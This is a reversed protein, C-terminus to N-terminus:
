QSRRFPSFGTRRGRGAAGDRPRCRNSPRLGLAVKARHPRAGRANAGRSIADLRAREALIREAAQRARAGRACGSESPPEFLHAVVFGRGSAANSQLPGCRQAQEAISLDAPLPMVAELAGDHQRRGLAFRVLTFSGPRGVRGLSPHEVEGKAFADLPIGADVLMRSRLAGALASPWPPMLAEGFSGADGFLRNGRFSLVDLPEILM